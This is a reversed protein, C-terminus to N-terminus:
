LGIERATNKFADTYKSSYNFRDENIELSKSFDGTAHRRAAAKWDCLMEILDLPAMDDITDYYEPHHSNNKYHHQLAPGLSKIAAMYEESGYELGRLSPLAKEFYPAEHKSYKSLDHGVARKILAWCAKLIYWTVWAKHKTTERIHIWRWKTM